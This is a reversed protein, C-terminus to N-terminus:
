DVLEPVLNPPTQGLVGAVLNRAALMAMDARTQRTASGIHPLLVVNPMGLLPNDEAIPEQEFVDLGAARIEGTRLANILASEDVVQGRSVNIFIASKKMLAFQEAGIMKVTAPTLPTMIVVYDSEALLQEMSRYEADYRREIEENRRRNYYLVKMDFGFRLRKAAAEGIRGMGIIGVTKHHVDIGFLETEMGKLWGGERVTRDLEPIRRAAALMLAVILDAVTDDLVGPTNTGMVGRRKMEPLDFNNYGVSINSVIRLNPAHDLLVADVPNFSTLLGEADALMAFFRDRTIRKNAEGKVIECYEAVYLEVEAPVPRALVVKPKKM